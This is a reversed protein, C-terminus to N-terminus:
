AIHCSEDNEGTTAIVFIRPQGGGGHRNDRVLIISAFPPFAHRRYPLIQEIENNIPAVFM